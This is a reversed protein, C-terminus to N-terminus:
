LHTPLINQLGVLFAGEQKPLVTRPDFVVKDDSTRAIIPPHAERLAALFKNPSKVQIALLYTPLLEGPLSGGGVASEGSIMEGAELAAAWGKARGKLMDSTTSIMQWIPIEREAEDKLYHLLTASLGALALKDARIARAMPHKRLKSILDARGVIIGAQPGGLLKDGSFCVLDSGAAMSEQVTLEHELGFRATDIFCGSGLDDVFPLGAKHAAKVIDELPPESAFGVM